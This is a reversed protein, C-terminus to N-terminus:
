KTQITLQAKLDDLLKKAFAPDDKMLDVGEKRVPVSSDEPLAEGYIIMLESRRDPTPLHFMRIRAVRSPFKLKSEELLRTIAASDSKPDDLQMTAYDPWSKVDYVFSLGGIDTTHDAPYNYTNSDSPLRHEFQVWYFADIVVSDKRPKVFLHQEADAMGYLNVQQGGMYHFASGFTLDAKPLEQSVITNGHVPRLNQAVANEAPLAIAVVVCFIFTFKTWSRMQDNEM